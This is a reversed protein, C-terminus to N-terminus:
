FHKYAIVAENNTKNLTIFYGSFYSTGFIGHTFINKYDTKIFMCLPLIETRDKMKLKVYMTGQADSEEFSYTNKVEEQEKDSLENFNYIRSRNYVSTM